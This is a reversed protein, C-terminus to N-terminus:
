EEKRFEKVKQSLEELEEKSLEPLHELKDAVADLSWKNKLRSIKMFFNVIVGTLIAIVIVAYVSLIVSLIKAVPTQVIIDGFGVTTVVAYCYWLGDAFTRIGPECLWVVFACAVVFALFIVMIKTVGTDRLIGRLIRLNKLGTEERYSLSRNETRVYIRQQKGDQLLGEPLTRM